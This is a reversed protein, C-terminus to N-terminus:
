GPLSEPGTAMVTTWDTSQSFQVRLSHAGLESSVAWHLPARAANPCRSGSGGLSSRRYRLRGRGPSAETGSPRHEDLLGDAAVSVRRRGLASAGAAASMGPRRPRGRCGGVDTSPPGPRGRCCGVGTSPGPLRRCGDLVSRVRHRGRGGSVGTSSRAPGPRQRCRRTVSHRVQRRLPVGGPRGGGVGTSPRASLGRCGGVGTTPRAVRLM